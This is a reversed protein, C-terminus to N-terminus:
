ASASASASAHDFPIQTRGKELHRFLAEAPEPRADAALIAIESEWAPCFLPEAQFM